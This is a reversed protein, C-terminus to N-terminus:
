GTKDRRDVVRRAPESVRVLQGSGPRDVFRSGNVEGFGAEQGLACLNRILDTPLDIEATPSRTRDLADGLRQVAGGLRMESGWIHMDALVATLDDHIEVAELSKSKLAGADGRGSVPDVELGPLRQETAGVEADEPM